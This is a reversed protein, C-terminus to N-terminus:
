SPRVDVLMTDRQKGKPTKDIALLTVPTGIPRGEEEEYARYQGEVTQFHFTVAGSRKQRQLDNKADLLATLVINRQAETLSRKKNFKHGCKILSIHLNSLFANDGACHGDFKVGDM